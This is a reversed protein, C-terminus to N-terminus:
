VADCPLVGVTGWGQGPNADVTNARSLERGLVSCVSPLSVKMGPYHRKEAASDAGCALLSTPDALARFGTVTIHEWIGPKQAFHSMAGHGSDFNM